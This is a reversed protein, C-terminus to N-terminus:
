LSTLCIEYPSVFGTTTPFGSLGEFCDGGVGDGEYHLVLDPGFFYEVVLSDSTPQSWTGTYGPPLFSPFTITGNAEYTVAHSSISSPFCLCEFFAVLGTGTCHRNVVAYPGSLPTDYYDLAVTHSASNNWKDANRENSTTTASATIVLPAASQPFAIDFYVTTTRNKRVRGLDCILSQASLACDDHVDGLEGMVYVQPSTNTTPLDIVLEVNEANANGINAVNVEYRAEDGVFVGSPADISVALNPRGAFAPGAACLVMLFVFPRSFRFIPSSTM